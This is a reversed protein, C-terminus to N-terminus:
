LYCWWSLWQHISPFIYFWLHLRDLFVLMLPINKCRSRKWVSSAMNNFSLILGIGYSKLKHLLDAHWVRSFLRLYILHWLELLGLGILLGLLEILHPQWFIELQDLLRSFISSILCFAVNLAILWTVLLGLNINKLSMVLWFVLVLCFVLLTTTKLWVGRGLM